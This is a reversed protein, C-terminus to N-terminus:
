LSRVILLPLLLFALLCGSNMSLFQFLRMSGSPIADSLCAHRGLDCYFGGNCCYTGCCTFNINCAGGNNCCVVTNAPYCNGASCCTENTQTSLVRDSIFNVQKQVQPFSARAYNISSVTDIQILLIPIFFLLMKWLLVSFNYSKM